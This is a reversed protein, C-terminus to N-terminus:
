ISILTLLRLINGTIFDVDNVLILRLVLEIEEIELKVSEKNGLKYVTSRLVLWILYIVLILRGLTLIKLKDDLGIM